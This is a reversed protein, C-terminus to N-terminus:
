LELLQDGSDARGNSDSVRNKTGPGVADKRRLAYGPEVQIAHGPAITSGGHGVFVVLFALGLTL